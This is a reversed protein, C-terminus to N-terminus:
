AGRLDEDTLEPLVAETIDHDRFAATYQELGLSRLWAAVNM